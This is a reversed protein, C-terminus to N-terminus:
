MVMIIINRKKRRIEFSALFMKRPGQFFLLEMPMPSGTASLYTPVAQPFHSM